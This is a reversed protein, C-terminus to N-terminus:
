TVVVQKYFSGQIGSDMADLVAHTDRSAVHVTVNDKNIALVNGNEDKVSMVLYIPRPKQQARTKKEGETM